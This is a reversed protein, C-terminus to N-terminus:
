RERSFLENAAFVRPRPPFRGPKRRVLFRPRRGNLLGHRRRIRVPGVALPGVQAFPADLGGDPREVLLPLGSAAGLARWAAVIEDEDFPGLRILTERTGDVVDILFGDTADDLRLALGTAAHGNEGGVIRALGGLSSKGPFLPVVATSTGPGDQLRPVAGPQSTLAM